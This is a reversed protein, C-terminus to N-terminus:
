NTLVEKIQLTQGHIILCRRLFTLLKRKQKFLGYNEFLFCYVTVFLELSEMPVYLVVLAKFGWSTHFTKLRDILQEHKTHIM